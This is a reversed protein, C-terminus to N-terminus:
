HTNKVGSKVPRQLAAAAIHQWEQQLQLYLERTEAQGDLAAHEIMMYLHRVIYLAIKPCSERYFETM